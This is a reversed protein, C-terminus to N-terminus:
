SEDSEQDYDDTIDEMSLANEVFAGALKAELPDFSVPENSYEAQHMKNLTKDRLTTGNSSNMKYVKITGPSFRRRM